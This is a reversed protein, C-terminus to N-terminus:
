TYGERGPFKVVLQDAMTHVLTASPKDGDVNDSVNSAQAEDGCDSAYQVSYKGLQM